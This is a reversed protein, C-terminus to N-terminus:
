QLWQPWHQLNNRDGVGNIVAAISALSPALKVSLKNEANKCYLNCCSWCPHQPANYGLLKSHATYNSAICKLHLLFSVIAPEQIPAARKFHWPGYMLVEMIKLNVVMPRPLPRLHSHTLVGLYVYNAWHISSSFSPSYLQDYVSLASFFVCFFLFCASSLVFLYMWRNQIAHISSDGFTAITNQGSAGPATLTGSCHNCSIPHLWKNPWYTGM